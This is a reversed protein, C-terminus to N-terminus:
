GACDHDKWTSALQAEIAELQRVVAADQTAQLVSTRWSLTVSVTYAPLMPRQITTSRLHERAHGDPTNPGEPGACAAGAFSDRTVRHM